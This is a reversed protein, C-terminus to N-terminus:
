NFNFTTYKETTYPELSLIDLRTITFDDENLQGCLLIYCRVENIMEQVKNHNIIKQLIMEKEELTTKGKVSSTDFSVFAFKDQQYDRNYEVKAMITTHNM